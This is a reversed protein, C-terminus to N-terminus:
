SDLLFGSPVVIFVVFNLSSLIPLQHPIFVLLLTEPSRCQHTCSLQMRKKKDFIRIRIPEEPPQGRRANFPEKPFSSSFFFVCPPPPSTSRLQTNPSVTQTCAGKWILKPHPTGFVPTAGAGMWIGNASFHTTSTSRSHPFQYFFNPEITM